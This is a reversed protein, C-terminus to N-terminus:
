RLNRRATRTAARSALASHVLGFGGVAAAIKLMSRWLEDVGKSADARDPAIRCSVESGDDPRIGCAM